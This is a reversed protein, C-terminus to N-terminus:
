KKARLPANEIDIILQEINTSKIILCLADCSVTLGYCYCDRATGTGEREIVGASILHKLAQSIYKNAGRIDKKIWAQPVFYLERSLYDIIELCIIPVRLTGGHLTVTLQKENANKM